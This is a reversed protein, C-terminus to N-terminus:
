FAGNKRSLPLHPGNEDRIKKEVVHFFFFASERERVATLGNNAREFGCFSEDSAAFPLRGNDMSPKEVLRLLAATGTRRVRQYSAILSAHNVSRM